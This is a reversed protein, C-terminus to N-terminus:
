KICIVFSHCNVCASRLQMNPQHSVKKVEHYPLHLLLAVLLSPSESWASIYPSLPHHHLVQQVKEPLLSVHLEYNTRELLHFLKHFPHFFTLFHQKVQQTSVMSTSKGSSSSSSLYSSSSATNRGGGAAATNSSSSSSSNNSPLPLSNVSILAKLWGHEDGKIWKTNTQFHIEDDQYGTCNGGFLRDLIKPYLSYFFHLDESGGGGGGNSSSFARSQHFFDDLTQNFLTVDQPHGNAIIRYLQQILAFQSNM